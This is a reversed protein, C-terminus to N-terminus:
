AHIHAIRLIRVPELIEVLRGLEYVFAFFLTPKLLVLFLRARSIATVMVTLAIIADAAGLIAECFFFSVVFGRGSSQEFSRFYVLAKPSRM